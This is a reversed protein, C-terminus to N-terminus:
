SMLDQKLLCQTSRPVVRTVRVAGRRSEDKSSSEKYVFTLRGQSITLRTKGDSVSILDTSVLYLISMPTYRVSGVVSTKVVSVLTWVSKKGTSNHLLILITNKNVNILRYACSIYEEQRINIYIWSLQNRRSNKIRRTSSIFLNVKASLWKNMLTMVYSFLHFPTTFM